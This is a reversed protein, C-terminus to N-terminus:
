KAWVQKVLIGRRGDVACGYRFSAGYITTTTDQDFLNPSLLEQLARSVGEQRSGEQPKALDIDTITWGYSYILFGATLMLVVLLNRLAIRSSNPPTLM